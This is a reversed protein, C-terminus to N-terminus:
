KSENYNRTNIEDRKLSEELGSFKTISRLTSGFSYGDQSGYVREAKRTRSLHQDNAYAAGITAAPMKESRGSCPKEDPPRM